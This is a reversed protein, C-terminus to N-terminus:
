IYKITKIINLAHFLQPMLNIGHLKEEIAPNDINECFFLGM